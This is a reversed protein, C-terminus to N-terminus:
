RLLRVQKLFGVVMKGFWMHKLPLLILNEYFRQIFGQFHMKSLNHWFNNAVFIQFFNAIFHKKKGQVRNKITLIMFHHLFGPCIKEFKGPYVYLSVCWSLFLVYPPIAFKHSFSDNRYNLSCTNSVFFFDLLRSCDDRAITLKPM